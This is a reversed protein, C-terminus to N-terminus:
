RHAARDPHIAPGTSHRTATSPPRARASTRFLHIAGAGAGTIMSSVCMATASESPRVPPSLAAAFRAISRSATEMEGATSSSSSNSCSIPRQADTGYRNRTVEAFVQRDTDGRLAERVDGDFRERETKRAIREVAQDDRM